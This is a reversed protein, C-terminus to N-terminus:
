VGYLKGYESYTSASGVTSSIFETTFIFTLYVSLHEPVTEMMLIIYKDNFVDILYLKIRILEYRTSFEVMYALPIAISCIHKQLILMLSLSNAVYGM